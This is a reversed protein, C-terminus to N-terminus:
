GEERQTSRAHWPILLKELGVVALFMGVSLVATVLIASFMLDARYSNKANQMLIGLGQFAGVYEAFIAGIVAYTISIKVGSFLYPLSGPARVKWFIQWRSAGMSQLLRIMEPETSALGDAVSVVIPFFTVLAVVLLKPLIGFGFWIVLLPALAIMPITQSVVLPPYLMRRLMPSAAILAGLACGAVLAIGMGVGAEILTQRTNVLLVGLSDFTTLLIRSPSPLVTPDTGAIRVYAEWVILFALVPLVALVFARLRPVSFVSM